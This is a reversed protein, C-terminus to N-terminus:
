NEGAKAPSKKGPIKEAWFKKPGPFNKSGSGKPTARREGQDRGAVKFIGSRIPLPLYL